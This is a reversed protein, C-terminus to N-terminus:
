SQIILGDIRLVVYNFHSFKYSFFRFLANLICSAPQARLLSRLPKQSTFSWFTTKLLISSYFDWHLVYDYSFLLSWQSEASRLTALDWHLVNDYSFLLYWQSEVSRLPPLHWDSLSRIVVRIWIVEWILDVNVKQYTKSYLVSLVNM